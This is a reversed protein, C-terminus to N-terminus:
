KLVMGAPVKGSTIQVTIDRSPETKKNTISSYNIWLDANTQNSFDVAMGAERPGEGTFRIDTGSRGEM